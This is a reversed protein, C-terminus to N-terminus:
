IIQTKEESLRPKRKLYDQNKEESLRPKRRLYDPNEFARSDPVPIQEV